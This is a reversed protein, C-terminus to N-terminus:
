SVKHMDIGQWSNRGRMAKFTMRRHGQEYTMLKFDGIEIRM